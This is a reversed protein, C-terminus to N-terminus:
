MKSYSNYYITFENSLFNSIPYGDHNRGLNLDFLTKQEQGCYKNKLSQLKEYQMFYALRLKNKLRKGINLTGLNTLCLYYYTHISNM